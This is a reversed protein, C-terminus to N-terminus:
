AAAAEPRLPIWLGLNWSAPRVAGQLERGAEWHSPRKGLASATHPAGHPVNSDVSSLLGGGGLQGHANDPAGVGEWGQRPRQTREPHQPCGWLRGGRPERVVSPSGGGRDAPWACGWAEPLPPERVARGAERHVLQLLRLPGTWGTGPSWM